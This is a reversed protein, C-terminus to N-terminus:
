PMSRGSTVRRGEPWCVAIVVRGRWDDHGRDALASRRVRRVVYAVLVCAATPLFGIYLMPLVGALVGIESPSREELPREFLWALVAVFPVAILPYYEVYGSAFLVWVPTLTPLLM